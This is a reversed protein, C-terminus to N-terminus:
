APQIWIRDPRIRLKVRHGEGPHDYPHKDLGMYRQTLADIHEVAGDQEMAVVTGALSVVRFPNAPDIVLVGVSPNREVNRAKRRKTMTNIVVEDGDIDIWTPTAHQSGDENTSTLAGVIPEKFMAKAADSLKASM